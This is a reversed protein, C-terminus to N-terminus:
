ERQGTRDTFTLARGKRSAWALLAGNSGFQFAYAIPYWPQGPTRESQSLVTLAVQAGGTDPRVVADEPWGRERHREWAVVLTSDGPHASRPVVIRFAGNPDAAVALFQAVQWVSDEHRPDMRLFRGLAYLDPATFGGLRLVCAETLAVVYPHWHSIAWPTVRYFQVPLEPALQLDDLTLPQRTTDSRLARGLVSREVALQSHVVAFVAATDATRRQPLPSGSAVALTQIFLIASVM